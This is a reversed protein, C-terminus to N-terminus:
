SARCGMACAPAWSSFRDLTPDGGLREALARSRVLVDACLDPTRQLEQWLATDGSWLAALGLAALYLTSFARTQAVSDEQGSPLVLNYDGLTTLARDPYCSLTLIPGLGRARFSKCARIPRETTEGSRSVAILVTRAASPLASANLWM